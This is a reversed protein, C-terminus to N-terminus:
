TRNHYEGLEPSGRHPLREEVQWLLDNLHEFIAGAETVM